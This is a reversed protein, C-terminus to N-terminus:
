GGNQSTGQENGNAQAGEGIKMRSGIRARKRFESPPEGSENQFSIGLRTASEFGSAKAIQKISLDTTILLQKAREIHVRRIEESVSRKLTDRFRRELSRRSLPVHELLDEIHIPKDAHESIFRLAAGVDPDDVMLVETSKRTVVRLPAVLTTAVPVREGEMIRDLLAAAEYGIQEVPTSISSLSPTMLTNILEDDDVGLV